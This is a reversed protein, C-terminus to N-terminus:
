AVGRAAARSERNVRSWWASFSDCRGAVDPFLAPAPRCTAWQPLWAALHPEALTQVSRAHALAQGIAAASGHWHLPALAAMRQGVFQWRARRWPWAQHFEAVMLGLVRTGAPLDTPVAGLNWPHVLWVERGAVTAPDPAQFGLSAPPATLVTPEALPGATARPDHRHRAAPGAPMAHERGLPTEAGAEAATRALQNLSDYSADLVSGPSHWAPPAHRAVNEANFVHPQHSGTGAVWQWSLHNSALDGDLLHAYLWDAGARWHVKRVHVLYSALWLRAHNHLWATDYLMQVAQDIVPVGTAAQRVDVPM